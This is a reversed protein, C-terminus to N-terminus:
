ALQTIQPSTVAAGSLQISRGGPGPSGSGGWRTATCSLQRARAPCPSGSASGHLWSITLAIKSANKSACGGDRDTGGRGSVNIAHSSAVPLDSTSSAATM